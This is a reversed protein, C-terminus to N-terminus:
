AARAVAVRPAYHKLQDRLQRRGRHLRSMVTGIPTGMITAIEKYPYGEIDALYVATRFEPGLSRLAEVV